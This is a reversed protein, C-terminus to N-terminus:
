EGFTDFACVHIYMKDVKYDAYKVTGRQHYCKVGLFEYWAYKPHLGKEQLFAEDLRWAQKPPVALEVTLYKPDFELYAGYDGVVVRDYHSCVVVGNITPTRLTDFGNLMANYWRYFSERLLKTLPLYKRVEGLKDCLAIMEECTQPKVFVHNNCVIDYNLDM